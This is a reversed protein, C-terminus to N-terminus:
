DNGQQRIRKNYAKRSPHQEPQEPEPTTTMSSITRSKSVCSGAIHAVLGASVVHAPITATAPHMYTMKSKKSM